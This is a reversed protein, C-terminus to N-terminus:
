QAALVADNTKQTQATDGSTTHQHLAIMHELNNRVRNKMAEIVTQLEAKQTDGFSTILAT